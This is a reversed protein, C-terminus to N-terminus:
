GGGGVCGRSFTLESLLPLRTGTGARTHNPMFNHLAAHIEVDCDVKRSLPPKTLQVTAPISHFNTHQGGPNTYTYGLGWPGKKLERYIVDAQYTVGQPASRAVDM